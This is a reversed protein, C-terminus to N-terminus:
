NNDARARGAREGEFYQRVAPHEVDALETMPGVAVIRKEGLVAVRDAVRWLSDPDHTIMVVTLGLWQKLRLLLADFADASSPDLGSTPEDLFLLEPDLAMARALGARKIMGGSLEAPYRYAAEAPLGVQRLKLYALQDIFEPEFDTHERLPVGINQLLTLGSFLAGHQFLVGFRRRLTQREHESARLVDVGLMRIGGGSPRRLMIIEQLLTTKGSGSGGVLALVEGRRVELELNEHVVFDEFRTQLRHLELVADPPPTM